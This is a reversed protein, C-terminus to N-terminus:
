TETVDNVFIGASNVGTKSSPACHVQPDGHPGHLDMPKQQDMTWPGVGFFDM